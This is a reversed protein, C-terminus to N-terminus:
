EDCNQGANILVTNIETSICIELAVFCIFAFVTMVYKDLVTSYSTKPLEEQFTVQFAVAALLLTIANAFKDSDPRSGLCGLSLTALFFLFYIIRQGYISWSRSLKLRITMVSYYKGKKAVIHKKAAAMLM